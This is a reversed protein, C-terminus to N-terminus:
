AESYNYQAQIALKLGNALANQEEIDKQTLGLADLTDRTSWTVIYEHNSLEYDFMDFIFGEGTTDSEIAATMEQTHRVMMDFLQDADTKKMFGGGFVKCVQDTESIDLGLAAMGDKFQENNFAWQIPLAELEERQRQKLAQYKEM